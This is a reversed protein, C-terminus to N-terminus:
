LLSAVSWPILAAQLHQFLHPITNQGPTELFLAARGLVKVKAWPCGNQVESKWFQFIIFKCEKSGTLKYYNIICDIPLQSLEQNAEPGRQLGM